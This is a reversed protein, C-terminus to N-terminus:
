TSLSFPNLSPSYASPTFPYLSFTPPRFDSCKLRSVKLRFGQTPVIRYCSPYVM